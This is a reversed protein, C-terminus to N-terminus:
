NELSMQVIENWFRDGADRRYFECLAHDFDSIECEIISALGSIIMRDLENAENQARKADSENKHKEKIEKYFVGNILNIVVPVEQSRCLVLRRGKVASQLIMAGTVHELTSCTKRFDGGIPLNIYVLDIFPMINEELEKEDDKNSLLSSFVEDDGVVGVGLNKEKFYKSAEKNTLIRWGKGDLFRALSLGSGDLATIFASRKWAWAKGGKRAEIVANVDAISQRSLSEDVGDRFGKDALEQLEKDTLHVYDLVYSGIKRLM